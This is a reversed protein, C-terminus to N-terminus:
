KHDKGIKIYISINNYKLQLGRMNLMCCEKLLGHLLAGVFDVM